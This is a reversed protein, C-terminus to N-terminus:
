TKVLGTIGGVWLTTLVWGSIIHFWLYGRLWGGTKPPFRLKVGSASALRNANPTWHEGIGLRVIPVFNELSYVFANFKPYDDSSPRAGDKEITYKADGTPTILGRRYGRRFLWWGIGIVILSIAFARWPSYGYGILQGFLGYWLWEPRWQVYRAHEENKAIMVARADDELGMKRLVDALQEFPQSLFRDQPQRKLWGLQIEASPPSGDAIQDYIFGDLRLCNQNLWSNQPNLLTGVKTPRLDLTAKGPSSVDAWVLGGNAQAAVIDVKGEAAFGENFIAVGEIKAGNANLASTEGNSIFQGGGCDLDGDIRAGGLDVGGVAKFGNKLFVYGKVEADNGNLALMKDSGVFQTGSCDLNGDIGVARADFAPVKDKGIFQGGGCELTGHIKAGQLNVGGEAKFGDRLFVNHKVEAGNGSLAVAKDNGIFQGGNCEFNGEIAASTLDVGGEAKFGNNLLVIGKVEVSNANLALNEGTGFFRGGGCELNGDIRATVLDVGGVAKFGNRLFVHGKVEAGNANLALVKDSGVFQGGSCDLSGDIKASELNVGGEAKFGNRLHVSGEFHATNADLEKVSNGALSLFSMHSNNLNFADRFVCNWARIPFEIKAWELNFEKEIVAGVVGVGHYTLQATAQPNTCLWSLLDGRINKDDGSLGTCDATEGNAAADILREEALSLKGFRNTVLQTLPTGPIFDVASVAIATTLLLAIIGPITTRM